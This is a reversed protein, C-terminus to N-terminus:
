EAVLPPTRNRAFDTASSCAASLMRQLETCGPMMAVGIQSFIGVLAVPLGKLSGIEYACYRVGSPRLSRDRYASLMPGSLFWTMGRLASSVRPVGVESTLSACAAPSREFMTDAVKDPPHRSAAIKAVANLSREPVFFVPNMSPTEIGIPPPAVVLAGPM